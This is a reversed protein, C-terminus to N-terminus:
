SAAPTPALRVHLPVTERREIDFSLFALILQVGLLFPLAALMVTGASAPVGQEASAWWRAVGVFLGFALSAVGLVIEISAVTFDRLFYVYAIRKTLNVFHHYLFEPLVRGVRVGSREDGYRAALPVDCVVAGALGLRFLLDSEFFYRPSLKALPLLRLVTAHVATYGNTPDFIHWYGSSLKSLFSLALNGIKRLAPMSRAGEADYFRNGKAYDVLGALIPAVLQPVRGPDMQGDGDIKVIVEAGEALAQRYGSITAGGVGLNHEHFLVRVRPDRSHEQVWKGSGEPCADDVVYVADVEPGIRDLVDLVQARVRFCPIVAAIRPRRPDSPM